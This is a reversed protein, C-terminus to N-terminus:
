FITFLFPCVHQIFIVWYWKELITTHYKKKHTKKIKNLM